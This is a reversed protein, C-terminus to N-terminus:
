CSHKQITATIWSDWQAEWMSFLASKRKADLSSYEISNIALQKLFPLDAHRGGFALAAAYFDHSLPLAGWVGPDDPAVVIPQSSAAWAAAPHDRLDKVLMLVQNSIPNVEIPINRKRAEQLLSPHKALAYGHGIRTTNLLLADFLNEDTPEGYWNTEGAHFFFPIHEASINLLPSIFDILPKGMDEQGVLDFGAVFDPFAEMLQRATVAHEWVTEVEVNRPPAYILRTGLFGEHTAVFRQTTDQYLQVLELKSLPTGDLEFTDALVARFEFYSVGDDFAEQMGQYFYAVAAEKYGLLGGIGVFYHGFKKWVANIDPYDEEPTETIISMCKMIHDDFDAPSTAGARAESIEQWNGACETTPLKTSFSFAVTDISDCVYLDKWYTLNKIVFDLSTMSSDHLHLITGKPMTKIFKSFFPSKNIDDKVLMFNSAPPFALTQFASDMEKTLEAVLLENVANEADTLILDSGLAMKRDEQMAVKRRALYDEDGRYPASLAAGLCTCLIAIYLYKVM